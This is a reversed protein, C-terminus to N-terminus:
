FTRSGAGLPAMTIPMLPPRFAYARRKNTAVADLSGLKEM